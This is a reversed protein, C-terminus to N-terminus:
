FSHKRNERERLYTSLKYLRDADKINDWLIGEIFGNCVSDEMLSYEQNQDFEPEITSIYAEILTGIQNHDWNALDTDWLSLENFYHSIFGSRSTFNAKIRRELVEKPVLEFLRKVESLEIYAFIRDTEFNYYKPSILTEFKVKIDFEDAFAETYEKAYENHVAGWDINDYAKELLSSFVNDYDSSFEQELRDDLESSHISEYFGSFPIITKLTTM